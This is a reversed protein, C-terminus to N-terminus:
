FFMALPANVSFFHAVLDGVFVCVCDEEQKSPAVVNQVVANLMIVSPMILNNAVNLMVVSLM